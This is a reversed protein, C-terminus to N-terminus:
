STSLVCLGRRVILENPSLHFTAATQSTSSL